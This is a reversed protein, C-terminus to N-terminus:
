AKGGIESRALAEDAVMKILRRHFAPELFLLVDVTAPARPAQRVVKMLEHIVLGEDPCVRVWAGERQLSYVVFRGANPALVEEATPGIM